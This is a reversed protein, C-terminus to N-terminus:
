RNNLLNNVDIATLDLSFVFPTFDHTAIYERIESTFNFWEYRHAFEEFQHHLKDEIAIAELKTYPMVPIVLDVNIDFPTGTRLGALRTGIERAYGIKVYQNAGEYSIFYVGGVIPPTWSKRAPM